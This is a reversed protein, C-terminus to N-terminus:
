FRMTATVSVLRPAAPVNTPIGYSGGINGADLLYKKGLVNSVEGVIEWRRDRARYGGRLNLLGFGGQRLSGGNQANDDEFFYASRYTYIPTIFMAGADPVPLSWTAGLSLVHRSTLRFSNGAYIQQNGDGDQAAFEADTFGYTAFVDLDRVISARLAADVGRGRARGGDFSELLAPPVVRMTQFHDFYYQFVSLEYSVRRGSTHGRVGAEFNWVTEAESERPALTTLEYDLVPPRSGRSVAAFATLRPTVAFRADVEGSWSNDYTSHELRGPTVAFVNNGGGSTPFFSLSGAVPGMFSQYGAVIRQRKLRLGGGLTLRDTLKYDARGFLDGSWTEARNEYHEMYDTVLPSTPPGIVPTLFVAWFVSEDTRITVRQRDKKWALSAGVSATLREGRDFEFRFEQSLQRGEFDDGMEMLYLASGDADFENRGELERWGSTSTLTWADNLEHRVIGTLGIVTREVGLESGRNLHTPTYPDTDGSSPVPIVASKFAVGPTDDRQVNFIVDATTAASPTWRLSARAALTGEGQLDSGDALNKVYGEREHALVAVRAFLKGEAVPRNVHAEFRRANFDGAGVSLSATSEDRARNSALSIAGSQVSEGFRTAQPGKFVAVHDMDFMAVANGHANNLGVGDQFVSVRPLARPDSVDSSLGRLNFNTIDVSQGVVFMGPVLPALDQFNAVGATELFDGEYVTVATPTDFRLNALRSEKVTLPDLMTVEDTVARAGGGVLLTAVVVSLARSSQHRHSFSAPPM